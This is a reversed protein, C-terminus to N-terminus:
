RGLFMPKQKAVFAATGARHDETLGCLRQAEAEGALAAALSGSSGVALELRIAGYAV